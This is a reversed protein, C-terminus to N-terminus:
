LPCAYDSCSAEYNCCLWRDLTDLEPQGWPQGSFPMTGDHLLTALTGARGGDVAQEDELAALVEEQTSMWWPGFGPQAGIHCGQCGMTAPDQNMITYVPLFLDQPGNSRGASMNARTSEGAGPLEAFALSGAALLAILIPAVTSFRM